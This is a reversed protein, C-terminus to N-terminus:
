RHRLPSSSSLAAFAGNGHARVAISAVPITDHNGGAAGCLTASQAQVTVTYGLPDNTVVDYKVANGQTVTTNVIGPVTLSSPLGALTISTLGVAARFHAQV